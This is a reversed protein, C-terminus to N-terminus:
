REILEYEYTINGNEDTVPTVYYNKADRGSGVRLRLIEKGRVSERTFYFAETEGHKTTTMKAETEGDEDEYEFSSREVCRGDRYISYSYEQEVEGREESYSQEVLMYEDTGLDVYFKTESESEDRENEVERGGRIDYDVGEIVMVGDISYAEENDDRDDHDDDDDDDDFHEVQTLNYHMQYTHSEGEIDSYTFITMHEYGERDSSQETIEFAGDSLLSDVLTMYKDLQAFEGDATGDTADEYPTPVPDQPAEEGQKESSIIMGASAASFAYISSTTNLEDFKGGNNGIGGESNNTCGALAFSTAIAGATILGIFLKKM